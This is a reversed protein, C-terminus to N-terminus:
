KSPRKGRPNRAAAERAAREAAAEREPAPTVARGRAVRKLPTPEVVDDEVTAGSAERLRDAVLNLLRVDKISLGRLDVDEGRGPPRSTSSSIAHFGALVLLENTEKPSLRLCEAMEILKSRSPSITRIGDKTTQYGREVQGWYSDSVGSGYSVQRISRGQRERREQLYKGWPPQAPTTSM